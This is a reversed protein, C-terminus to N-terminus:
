ECLSWKHYFHLTQYEANSARRYVLLSSFSIPSSSLWMFIHSINWVIWTFTFDVMFTGRPIGHYQLVFTFIISVLCYYRWFLFSTFNAKNFHLLIAYKKDNGAFYPLVAFYLIDGWSCLILRTFCASIQLSQTEETFFFPTYWETFKCFITGM